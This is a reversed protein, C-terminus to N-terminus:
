SDRGRSIHIGKKKWGKKKVMGHLMHARLEGVLSQFWEGQLLLVAMKVVPGSPWYQSHANKIKGLVTLNSQLCNCWKIDYWCSVLARWGGMNELVQYCRVEEKQLATDTTKIQMKRTVPLVSYGKRHKRSKQTEGETCHRALGKGM